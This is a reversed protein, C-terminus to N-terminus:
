KGGRAPMPVVNDLELSQQREQAKRNAERTLAARAVKFTERINTHYSDRYKFGAAYVGRTPMTKRAGTM